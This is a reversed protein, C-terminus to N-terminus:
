WLSSGLHDMEGNFKSKLDAWEQVVDRTAEFSLGLTGKRAAIPLAWSESHIIGFPPYDETYIRISSFGAASLLGRLATENFERVELAKGDGSFHFVPDEFVQIQGERTRNVLIVQDSLQTFGFQHLDPYHERM